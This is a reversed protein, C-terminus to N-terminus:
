AHRAVGPPGLPGTEPPALGEARNWIDKLRRALREPEARHPPDFHHRGKFVDLTFDKFVQSAREAMRGYYRPNSLEGLAYYVPQGFARLAELDLDFTRFADILAKIGAPRQAMWPPPPGTPPPPPEVGPALNARVFKTM